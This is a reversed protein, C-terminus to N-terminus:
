NHALKAQHRPYKQLSVTHVAKLKRATYSTVSMLAELTSQQVVKSTSSSPSQRKRPTTMEVVVFNVTFSKKGNGSRERKCRPYWKLPSWALSKM